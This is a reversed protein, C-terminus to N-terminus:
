YYINCKVIINNVIKQVCKKYIYNELLFEIVNILIRRLLSHNGIVYSRMILGKNRFLRVM